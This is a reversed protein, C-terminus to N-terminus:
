LLFWVVFCPDLVGVIPAVVVFECVVNYKVILEQTDPTITLFGKIFYIINRSKESVTFAVVKVNM